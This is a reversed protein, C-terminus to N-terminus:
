IEILEYNPDKNTYQAAFNIHLFPDKHTIEYFLNRGNALNILDVSAKDIAVPNQSFLIGIDQSIIEGSNTACDCLKTVNKIINIYFTTQPFNNILVSAGQALLDDFFAKVPKLNSNQCNVECVSCGWCAGYDIKIENNNITIANSPCYKACKGCSECKGTIKPKSLSHEMEKSKASVGGMGLNKIAGGFGTAPHGKVHSIVLVNQAEILEKIAEVEFDKSRVRTINNSILFESIKDFGRERVVEEYGRVTKRPGDYMVPSDIMITKLKLFNLAKIIPKIDSPTLATKNGREGFHLKIIVESKKPYFNNLLKKVSDEVLDFNKLLYVKDM